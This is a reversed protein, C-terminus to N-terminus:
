STLLSIPNELLYGGIYPTIAQDTDDIQHVYLMPFQVSSIYPHSEASPTLRVDISCEITDWEDRM